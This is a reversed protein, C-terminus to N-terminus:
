ASRRPLFPRRWRDMLIRISEPLSDWSRSVGGETASSSGEGGLRNLVICALEIIVSDAETGPDARNTYSEFTGVATDIAMELTDDHMHAYQPRMRLKVLRAGSAM